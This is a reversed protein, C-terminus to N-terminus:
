SSIGITKQFHKRMAKLSRFLINKAVGRSCDLVSAIEAVSCEEFYRLVVALKQKPNLRELSQLILQRTENERVQEEQVAGIQLPHGGADLDSTRRQSREWNTSENVTIRILWPRFARPSALNGLNRFVKLFVNQTIDMASYHDGTRFFAVKYVMREYRRMLLEFAIPSGQGAEEILKANDLDMM